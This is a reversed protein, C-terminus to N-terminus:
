ILAPEEKLNDIGTAIKKLWEVQEKGVIKLVDQQKKQDFELKRKFTVEASSGRELAQIPTYQRNAEQKAKMLQRIRDIQAKDAGKKVLEDLKVLNATDKVIGAQELLENSLSKTWDTAEKNADALKKANIAAQAAGLDSDKFNFQRKLQRLQREEASLEETSEQIDRVFTKLATVAKENTMPNEWEQRRRRLAEEEKKLADVVRKSEAEEADALKKTGELKGGLWLGLNDTSNWKSDLDDAKKKAKGLGDEVQKLKSTNSALTKDIDATTLFDGKDSLAERARQANEVVGDAWKKASDIGDEVRRNFETAGTAANFIHEGVDELVKGGIELAKMGAGIALGGKLGGIGGGGGGGGSLGKSIEAGKSKADKAAKNMGASLRTADVNLVISAEAVNNSM